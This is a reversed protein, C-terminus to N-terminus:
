GSKLSQPLSQELGGRSGKDRGEKKRGGEGTRCSTFVLEEAYGGRNM